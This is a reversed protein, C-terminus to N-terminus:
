GLRQRVLASARTFDMRGAFRRKLLGMVKGTDKIGRAATETIAQDVAAAVEDASMQRPLFQKIVEIEDAEERALEPRGGEEYFKISERRQRIMAQMLEAIQIDNLGETNGRSREAIDRDKLAALILRVTALATVNRALMASKLAENLRDRLTMTTDTQWFL